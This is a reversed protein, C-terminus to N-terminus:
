MVGNWVYKETTEYLQKPINGKKSSKSMKSGQQCKSKKSVGEYYM